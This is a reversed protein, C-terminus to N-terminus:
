LLVPTSVRGIRRYSLNIDALFSSNKPNITTSRMAIGRETNRTWFCCSVLLLALGVVDIEKEGAVVVAVAPVGNLNSMM